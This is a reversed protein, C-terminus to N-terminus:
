GQAGIGPRVSARLQRKLIKGAGSMPFQEVSELSRPCKYGAIERKCFDQLEELTLTAGPVLTVVAHV